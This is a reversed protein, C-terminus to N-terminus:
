ALKKAIALIPKLGAGFRAMAERHAKLEGYSLYGRPGAIGDFVRERIADESYASRVM